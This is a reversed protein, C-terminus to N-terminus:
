CSIIRKVIEKDSSKLIKQGSLRLVKYGLMGIHRDKQKDRELGRKNLHWYEGDCELVLNLTPILFDAHYRGIKYEQIFKIKFKTLIKRMREELSSEGDYHKFCNWSCFRSRGRNWDSRPIQFNKKCGHCVLSVYDRM